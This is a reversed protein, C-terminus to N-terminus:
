TIEAFHNIKVNLMRSADLESIRGERAAGMVTSILRNGLRSRTRIRYSPRNKKQRMANKIRDWELSCENYYSWYYNTDIYGLDLIRRAVVVTSVAFIYSIREIKAKINDARVQKWENILDDHPVLFEAAVQDCFLENDFTSNTKINLSIWNSVGTDGLWIHCLEHVLTFIRATKADNPNVVILPAFEDSISIGRFVEPEIDTHWSGLNGELLAFIGHEEAKARIDSFVQNSDGLRKQADLPYGLTTRISQVVQNPRVHTNASGVFPLRKAGAQRTLDHLSVQLAEIRRLLASFESSFAESDVVKSGVTRFDTIRTEKVPPQPLFFTLVPRRYAKALKELQAFTPTDTGEEWRGLRLVSPLSEKDGRAKLDKIGAKSAARAPSLNAERRAWLLISHNIPVDKIVM